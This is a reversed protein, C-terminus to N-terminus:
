YRVDSLTTYRPGVSRGSLYKKHRLNEKAFGAVVKAFDASRFSTRSLPAAVVVLRDRLFVRGVLSEAPDPNGRIM